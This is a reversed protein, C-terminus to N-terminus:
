LINWRAHRHNRHDAGTREAARERVRQRPAAADAFDAEDIGVALDRFALREVDQLRAGTSCNARAHACGACRAAAAPASAITSASRTAPPSIAALRPQREKALQRPEVGRAGKTKAPPWCRSSIIRPRASSRIAGSRRIPDAGSASSDATVAITAASMSPLAWSRDIPMAPTGGRSTTIPQSAAVANWWGIAVLAPGGM